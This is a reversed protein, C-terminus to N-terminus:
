PERPAQVLLPSGCQECAATFAIRGSRVCTPCYVSIQLGAAAGFEARAQQAGERVRDACRQLDAADHDRLWLECVPCRGLPKPRLRDWLGMAMETMAVAGAGAFVCLVFGRVAGDTLLLLVPLALSAALAVAVRDLRLSAFKSRLWCM